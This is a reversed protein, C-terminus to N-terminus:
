RPEPPPYPEHVTAHDWPYPEGKMRYYLRELQKLEDVTLASYGEISGTEVRMKRQLARFQLLEEFDLKSFDYTIKDM